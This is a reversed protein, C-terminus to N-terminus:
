LAVRLPPSPRPALLTLGPAVALPSGGAAWPSSIPSCTVNLCRWTRGFGLDGEICTCAGVGLVVGRGQTELCWQKVGSRVVHHSAHGRLLIGCSGESLSPPVLFLAFTHNGTLFHTVAHLLCLLALPMKVHAILCFYICRPVTHVSSSHEVRVLSVVIAFHCSPSWSRSSCLTTVVLSSQQTVLLKIFCLVNHSPQHTAAAHSVRACDWRFRARATFVLCLCFHM